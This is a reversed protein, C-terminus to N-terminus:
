DRNQRESDTENGGSARSPPFFEASFTVLSWKMSKVAQGNRRALSWTAALVLLWGLLYVILTVVLVGLTGTM